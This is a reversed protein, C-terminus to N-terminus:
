PRRRRRLGVLALGAVLTALALAAPRARPAAVTCGGSKKVCQGLSNCSASGGCDDDIVCDYTCANNPGCYQGGPCDTNGQCSEGGGDHQAAADSQGGGDQQGAADQQVGADYQQGDYVVFARIVWDGQVGLAQSKLWGGPNAYIYNRDAYTNGDNDRAVSPYGAHQFQLAVRFPSTATIQGMTTLDIESLASNSGQLTVDTATMIESGPTNVGGADDYIHLTVTQSTAAGGFLLQIKTITCPGTPVFRSAAMEGVVFGGQFAATQGDVFSDNKLETQAWAASACLLVSALTVLPLLLGRTRM